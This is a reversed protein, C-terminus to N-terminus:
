IDYWVRSRVALLKSTQMEDCYLNLDEKVRLLNLFEIELVTGSSRNYWIEQVITLFNLFFRM